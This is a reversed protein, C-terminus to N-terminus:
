KTAKIMIRDGMESGMIKLDFGLANLRNKIDDYTGGFSTIRDPHVECYITECKSDSFTKVGGDIVNLEAGEVDIKVVSPVPIDNKSWFNDIQHVAVSVTEESSTSDLSHEGLGADVGRSALEFTGEEDSLAVEYTEANINNRRLNQKLAEMNTPHPEFSYVACVSGIFCSYLGVNAGIDCFVDDSTVETLVDEIVEQEGKLDYFREFEAYTNTSMEVSIEGITINKTSDSLKYFFKLYTTRFGLNWYVFRLVARIFSFLGETRLIRIAQRIIQM